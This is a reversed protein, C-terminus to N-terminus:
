PSRGVESSVVTVVRSVEQSVNISPEPNGVPAGFRLTILPRREVTSILNAHVWSPGGSMIPRALEELQEPDLLASSSVTWEAGYDIDDDLVFAIEEDGLHPCGGNRLLANLAAVVRQSLRVPM